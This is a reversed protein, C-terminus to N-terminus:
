KKRTLKFLLHGIHTGIYYGIPVSIALLYDKRAM